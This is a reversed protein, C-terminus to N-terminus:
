LSDNGTKADSQAMCKKKYELPTVGVRQKFQRYFTEHYTYGLADIIQAISGNPNNAIMKQAVDVKRALIDRNISNNFVEKYLRRFHSVSIDNERCLEEISYDEFVSNLIKERMKVLKQYYPHSHNQKMEYVDSSNVYRALDILFLQLRANIAIRYYVENNFHELVLLKISKSLSKAYEVPIEPVIM